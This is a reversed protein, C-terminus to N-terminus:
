GALLFKYIATVKLMMLKVTVVGQVSFYGKFQLKTELNIHCIGGIGLGNYLMGLLFAHIIYETMNNFSLIYIAYHWSHSM